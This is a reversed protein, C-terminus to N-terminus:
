KINYHTEKPSRVVAHVTRMHARSHCKQVELQLAFMGVLAGLPRRPTERHTFGRGKNPRSESPQRPLFHPLGFMLLKREREGRLIPSHIYPSQRHDTCTLYVSLWTLRSQWVSPHKWLMKKIYWIWRTKLIKGLKQPLYTGVMIFHTAFDAIPDVPEQYPHM